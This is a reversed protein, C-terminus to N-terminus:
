FFTNFLLFFITLSIVILSTLPDYVILTICIFIFIIVESIIKITPFVVGISFLNTESTLNRILTSSSNQIHFLYNKSLYNSLIKSSIDVNLSHVFKNQTYIIYTLSIFKLFYISLFILLLSLFVEIQTLNNIIPFHQTYKDFNNEIFISLIPLLLGISLVELIGSMLTLFIIFFIKKIFKKELIRLTKQFNNLLNFM